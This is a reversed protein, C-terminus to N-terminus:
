FVNMDQLVIFGHIFVIHKSVHNKQTENPVSHWLTWALPAAEHVLPVTCLLQSQQWRDCLRWLACMFMRLCDLRCADRRTLKLCFNVNKEFLFHFRWCLTALDHLLITSPVFHTWKWRRRRFLHMM